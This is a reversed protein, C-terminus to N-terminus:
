AVPVFDVAWLSMAGMVFDWSTTFLGGDGVSKGWSNVLRPDGEPYDLLNMCHGSGPGIIGQFPGHEPRWNGFSDNVLWGGMIGKGSALLTKIAERLSPGPIETIRHSKVGARRLGTQGQGLKNGGWRESPRYPMEREYLFGGRQVGRLSADSTTGDMVNDLARQIARAQKYLQLASPEEFDPFEGQLACNEITQKLGFGVCTGASGQDRIHRVLRGLNLKAPPSKPTAGLVAALSHTGKAGEPCPDCGTAFKSM